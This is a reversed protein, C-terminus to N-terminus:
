KVFYVAGEGQHPKCGDPRGEKLPQAGCKPPTPPVGHRVRGEPGPAGRTRQWPQKGVGAAGVATAQSIPEAKGRQARWEPAPHPPPVQMCQVHAALGAMPAVAGEAVHKTGGFSGGGTPPRLGAMRQPAGKGWGLRM